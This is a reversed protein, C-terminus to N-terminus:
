RRRRKVVNREDIRNTRIQPHFQKRYRFFLRFVLFGVHFISLKEMLAVSLTPAGFRRDASCRHGEKPIISSLGGNAKSQNRKLMGYVIAESSKLASPMFRDRKQEVYGHGYVM